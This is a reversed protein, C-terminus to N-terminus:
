EFNELLFIELFSVMSVIEPLEIKDFQAHFAKNRLKVYSQVVGAQAGKLIGAAKLSNVVENLDMNYASIKNKIALKKMCDELAGCALVAASEKYKDSALQKSLSLFDGYVQAEAQTRLSVLLNFEIDSKLTNLLGNILSQIQIAYRGRYSTSSKIYSERLEVLSKAQQSNETYCSNLISLTGFVTKEVMNANHSNNQSRQFINENDSLIQDIRTIIDEKKIKM